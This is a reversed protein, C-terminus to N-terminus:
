KKLEVMRRVGTDKIEYDSPVMFLSRDPEARVINTLRYNSEGTRPDSHRTLVLVGLEPSRWEESIITLPQENGVKGAPIVVKTVRGEVAVGDITKHELPTDPAYTFGTVAGGRARMVTGGDAPAGAQRPKMEGEAAAKAMAVQEAELKRKMGDLESAQVKDMIVSAVGLPTRWAIRREPDLSYAFGEVPDVISITTVTNATVTTSSGGGASRASVLVDEERRTRGEGDRYVRGTTKRNIRNGDALAQLSEVVTEASYPAGTMAKELPVRAMYEVTMKEAAMKEATVKRATEDQAFAPASTMLIALTATTALRM